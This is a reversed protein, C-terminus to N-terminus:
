TNSHAWRHGCQLCRYYARGRFGFWKVLGAIGAVLLLLSIILRPQGDASTLILVASIVGAILFVIGVVLLAITGWAKRVKPSHCRPCRTHQQVAHGKPM